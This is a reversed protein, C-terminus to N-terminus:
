KKAKILILIAFLFIAFALFIFFELGIFNRKADSVIGISFAVMMLVLALLWHGGFNPKLQKKPPHPINRM